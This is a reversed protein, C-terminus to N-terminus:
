CYFALQYFASCLPCLHPSAYHRSSRSSVLPMGPYKLPGPRGPASSPPCKSKGRLGEEPVGVRCGALPVTVIPVFNNNSTAPKEALFLEGGKALAYWRTAHEEADPPWNAM